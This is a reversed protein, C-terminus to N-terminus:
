AKVLKKDSKNNSKTNNRVNDRVNNKLMGNVIMKDGIDSLINLYGVINFLIIHDYYQKIDALLIDQFMSMRYIKLTYKGLAMSSSLKLYLSDYLTADINKLIFIIEENVLIATLVNEQLLSDNSLKNIQDLILHFNKQKNLFLERNIIENISMLIKTKDNELNLYCQYSRGIDIKKLIGENLFFNSKHNIIPYSKNLHKAIENISFTNTLDNQFVSIISQELKNGIM